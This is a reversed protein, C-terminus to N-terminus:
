YSSTSSSLEEQMCVFAATHQWQEGTLMYYESTYEASVVPIVVRNKRHDNCPSDDGEQRSNCSYQMCSARRHVMDITALRKFSRVKVQKAVPHSYHMGYSSSKVVAYMNNTYMSLSEHAVVAYWIKDNNEHKNDGHNSNNNNKYHWLHHLPNEWVHYIM